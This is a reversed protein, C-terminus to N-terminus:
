DLDAPPEGVVWWEEFDMDDLQQVLDDVMLGIRSEPSTEHLSARQHRTADWYARFVPNQIMIRLHGFLEPSSFVGTRYSLVANTYLAHAFLLQRRMVEPVEVDFTDMVIALQPDDIAKLLLEQYARYAATESEPLSEQQAAEERSIRRRAATAELVHLTKEVVATGAERAHGTATRAWHAMSDAYRRSRPTPSLRDAYQRVFADVDEVTPAHSRGSRAINEAAAQLSESTAGTFVGALMQKVVQETSAKEAM